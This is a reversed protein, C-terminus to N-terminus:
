GAEGGEERPSIAREAGASTAGREVDAERRNATL